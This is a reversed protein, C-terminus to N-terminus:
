ASGAALGASVPPVVATCFACRRAKIPISSLCEPCERTTVTAAPLKAKRRAELRQAPRVLVFFVVAAIILFTVVANIFLGYPFVSQNITFTYGSFDAKGPIGVLPMILDNVMAMVVANFQLGIIFAVALELVNGKTIFSKFEELVAM